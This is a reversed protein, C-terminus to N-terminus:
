GQAISAVSSLTFKMDIHQLHTRLMFGSRAGEHPLDVVTGLFVTSKTNKPQNESKPGPFVDLCQESALIQPKVMHLRPMWNRQCM